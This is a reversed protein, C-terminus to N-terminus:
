YRFIFLWLIHRYVQRAICMYLLESKTINNILSFGIGHINMTIEQNIIELDGALQCDEAIKLNTTFLLVRQIGDLFSVYFLEEDTDPLQFAGLNDQFFLFCIKSSFFTFSQYKSDKINQSM